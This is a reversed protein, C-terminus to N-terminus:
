AQERLPLTFYFTSGKGPASRVWIRGGHREVIKKCIALGIGTGSYESSTHLRQFLGFIRETHEPAIGIGNDLVSFTWEHQNREASLHVRPPTGNNFKVANGILNQFVQALQGDDAMVTPLADCTVVVGREEITAKLNTLVRDVLAECNTPAFEKGRTGVRSYALLDNILTQMRNVGEVAYTIFEDADADLKGQYRKALLQTYSAVMRLPEQLDHSAVYAFQELDTNSRALEQARQVLIENLSKLTATERQLMRRVFPGLRIGVMLLLLCVIMGFLWGELRQLRAVAADHEVQYHKMVVDLAAPLEKGSAAALISALRPNDLTLEVDTMRALENVEAAYNRLQADLLTPTDFFLARVTSSPRSPLNMGRDGNVLGTHSHELLSMTDLLEKRVDAREDQAPTTVLRQALLATRHLLVGQRGSVYVAALLQNTKRQGSLIWAQAVALAALLGIAMLYQLKTTHTLPKDM